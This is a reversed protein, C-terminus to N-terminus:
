FATRPRERLSGQKPDGSVSTSRDSLLRSLQVQRSAAVPSPCLAWAPSPLVAKSSAHGARGARPRRLGPWARSPCVTQRLPRLLPQPDSPLSRARAGPGRGTGESRLTETEQRAVHLRHRKGRAARSRSVRESVASHRLGSYARGSVGLGSGLWGRGHASGRSRALPRAAVCGTEQPGAGRLAPAPPDGRPRVLNPFSEKPSPPRSRPALPVYVARAEARPPRPPAWPEGKRRPAEAGEEAVIVPARAPGPVAPRSRAGALHWAAGGADCGRQQLSSVVAGKKCFLFGPSLPALHAQHPSPLFPGPRSWLGPQVVM